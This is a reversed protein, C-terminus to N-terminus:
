IQHGVRFHIFQLQMADYGTVEDRNSLTVPNSMPGRRKGPQNKIPVM